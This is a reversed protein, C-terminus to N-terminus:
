HYAGKSDIKFGDFQLTKIRKFKHSTLHKLGNAKKIFVLFICNYSFYTINIPSLRFYLVQKEFCLSSHCNVPQTSTNEFGKIERSALNSYIYVSSLFINPQSFLQGPSSQHICLAIAICNDPPNTMQQPFHVVHLLSWICLRGSM